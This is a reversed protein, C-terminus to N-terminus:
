NRQTVTLGDGTGAARVAFTGDRDGTRVRGAFGGEQDTAGQAVKVFIQQASSMLELKREDTLTVGNREFANILALAEKDQLVRNPNGSEIHYIDEQTLRVPQRLKKLQHVLGEQTLGAEERYRSMLTGFTAETDGPTESRATSRAEKAAAYFQKLERAKMMEPHDSAVILMYALANVVDQGPISRNAEWERVDNLTIARETKISAEHALETQTWDKDERLRNLKFGFTQTVPFGDKYPVITAHGPGLELVAETIDSKQSHAIITAEAVKNELERINGPWPHKVLAALGDDTIAPDFKQADDGQLNYKEITKGMFHKALLPIDMPREQLSPVAIETGRLRYYLDQRLNGTGDTMESTASIIRPKAEIEDTGGVKRIKGEQLARLLKVQLDPTLNNIEDLFLTGNAAKEFLGVKETAAGTFAGRKHGFLESEMLDHPIAGCNIAIFPKGKRNSHNHIYLAVSEKGSGTPGKLIISSDEKDAFLKAKKLTETLPSSPEDYILERKCNIKEQTM